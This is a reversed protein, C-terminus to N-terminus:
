KILDPQQLDLISAISLFKSFLSESDIDDLFMTNSGDILALAALNGCQITQVGNGIM